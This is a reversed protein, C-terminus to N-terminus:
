EENAAKGSSAFIIRKNIAMAMGSAILFSIAPRPLDIGRARGTGTSCICRVTFNIPSTSPLRSSSIWLTKVSIERGCNVRQKCPTPVKGGRPVGRTRQAPTCGSSLRMVRCRDTSPFSESIAIGRSFCFYEGCRVRALSLLEGGLCRCCNRAPLAKRRVGSKVTEAKLRCLLWNVFLPAFCVSM